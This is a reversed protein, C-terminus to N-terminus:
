TCKLVRGHVQCYWLSQQRKRGEVLLRDPKLQYEAYGLHRDMARPANSQMLVAMGIIKSITLAAMSMKIAFETEACPSLGRVPRLKGSTPICINHPLTEPSTDEIIAM